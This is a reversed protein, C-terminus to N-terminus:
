RGWMIDLARLGNGPCLSSGKAAYIFYGPIPGSEVQGLGTAVRRPARNRRMVLAGGQDNTSSNRSARPHKDLRSYKELLFFFILGLLLYKKAEFINATDWASSPSPIKM